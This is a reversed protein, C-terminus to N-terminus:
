EQCLTGRLLYCTLGAQGQKKGSGPISQSIPFHQLAIQMMERLHM